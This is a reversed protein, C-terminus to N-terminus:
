KEFPTLYLVACGLAFYIFQLPNLHGISVVEGVLWFLLILGALISALEAGIVKKYTSIAALLSSGGVVAFLIIGPLYFSAFDTDTLLEAGPDVSGTMLGIGGAVATLGIFLLLGILLKRKNM